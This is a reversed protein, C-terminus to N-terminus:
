GSAFGSPHYLMTDKPTSPGVGTVSCWAVFIDLGGEALAGKQRQNRPGGEGWGQTGKEATISSVEAGGDPSEGHELGELSKSGLTRAPLSYFQQCIVTFGLVIMGSSQNPGPGYM